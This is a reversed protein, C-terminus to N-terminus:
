LNIQIGAHLSQKSIKRSSSGRWDGTATAELLKIYLCHKLLYGTCTLRGTPYIEPSPIKPDFSTYM